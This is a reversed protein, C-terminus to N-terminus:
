QPAGIFRVAFAFSVENSNRGSDRLYLIQVDSFFPKSKIADLVELVPREDVAQGTIVAKKNEAIGLNTVWVSGEVPFAETLQKLHSLFEPDRSTWQAAYTVRDVVAQAAAIDNAMGDLESRYEAIAKRNGQADMWAMAVLVLVVIAAVTGWLTARGHSKKTKQTLASHLFDVELGAQRSTALPLAAAIRAPGADRLSTRSFGAQELWVDGNLLVAHGNMSQCLSAFTDDGLPSETFLSIGLPGQDTQAESLLLLRRIQAQLQTSDLETTAPMDTFRLRPLPNRVAWNEIWGDGMYLGQHGERDLRRLCLSTATIALVDLGAGQMLAQIQHLRQRHTGVLLVEAKDGNELPGITDLSLDQPDLSFAREAQLRLMGQLAEPTAPPLSLERTVLWKAPLGVVASKSMMRNQKLFQRLAEATETSHELADERPWTFLGSHLLRPGTNGLNVEAVRVRDDELALGLITQTRAM